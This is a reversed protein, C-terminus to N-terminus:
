RRQKFLRPKLRFIHADVQNAVVADVRERHLTQMNEHMRSQQGLGVVRLFDNGNQRMFRSMDRAPM